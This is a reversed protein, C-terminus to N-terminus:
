TAESEELQEEIQGLAFAVDSGSAMKKVALSRALVVVFKAYLLFVDPHHDSYERLVHAVGVSGDTEYVRLLLYAREGLHEVDDLARLYRRLRDITSTM